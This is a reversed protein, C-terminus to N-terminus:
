RMDSIHEAILMDVVEGYSQIGSQDMIKLYTDNVAESVRVTVKDEYKEAHRNAAIIDAVLERSLYQSLEEAAARDTRALANYCYIFGMYSASYKLMDNGYDRCVVIGIYNAENEPAYGLRHALEHGASFALSVGACDTNVLCESTFPDHIGAIDFCSLLYWWIVKKPKSVLAGNWDYTKQARFASCVAKFIGDTDSADVSGDEPNREVRPAYENALEIYYLTTDRLEERTHGAATMSLQESLPMGFYNLGWTFVFFAAHCGAILALVSFYRGVANKGGRRAWVFILMIVSAIFGLIMAYLMIEGIPIPIFSTLRGWIGCIRRSFPTFVKTVTKPNRRAIMCAAASLALLLLGTGAIIASRAPYGLRKKDKKQEKVTTKM